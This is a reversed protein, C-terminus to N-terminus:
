VVRTDSWRLGVGRLIDPEASRISYNTYDPRLNMGKWTKTAGCYVCESPVDHTLQDQLRWRHVCPDTM